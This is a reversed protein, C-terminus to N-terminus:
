HWSLVTCICVGVLSQVLLHLREVQPLPFYDVESWAFEGYFTAALLGVCHRAVPTRWTIRCVKQFCSSSLQQQATLKKILHAPLVPFVFAYTLNWHHKVHVSCSMVAFRNLFDWFWSTQSARQAIRPVHFCLAQYLIFHHFCHGRENWVCLTAALCTFSKLCVQWSNNSVSSM